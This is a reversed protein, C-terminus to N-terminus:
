TRTCPRGATARPHLRLEHRQGQPHGERRLPHLGLSVESRSPRGLHPPDLGGAPRRLRLHRDPHGHHQGQQDQGRPHRGHQRHAEAHGPGHALARHGAHPHVHRGRHRQRVGHVRALRAPARDQQLAADPRPGHVVGLRPERPAGRGAPERPHAHPLLLLDRRPGGERAEGDERHRETGRHPPAHQAAAHGGTGRPRVQARGGAHGPGRGRGRQDAEPPLPRRGGKVAEIMPLAHWHDPPAIIALDLDKEALMKRYDTYTRPAKKSAQRAAVQQAADALMAKDVDCLSVVEVPAVQILRFLDCKGYWGSGILGVRLPSEAFSEAYRTTGLALAAAGGTKLFHRRKM